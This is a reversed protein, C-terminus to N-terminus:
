QKAPAWASLTNGVPVLLMKDTVGMGSLKPTHGNGIPGGAKASWIQKGTQPDFAYLRGKSDGIFLTDNLVLPPVTFDKSDISWAVAGSATDFGTLVHSSDIVFGMPSGSLPQWFAPVLYESVFPYLEKGTNADLVVQDVTDDVYVSGGFYVPTGGGGGTCGSKFTWLHKGSTADYAVDDCPYTVYANGGGLAPVGDGGPEQKTWNGSGDAEAVSRLDGGSRSAVFYVNGGGAVGPEDYISSDQQKAWLPAGTQADFAQLLGGFSFIFVRGGDYMPAGGSQVAVQWVIHGGKASLAILEIGAGTDVSVFVMGAGSVPYSPLGPLKRTWQLQLPAQFSKSFRIQGDHAADIQFNGTDPDAWAPLAISIGAVVLAAYCLMKM